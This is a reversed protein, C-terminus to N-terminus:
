RQSQRSSSCDSCCGKTSAPQAQALLGSHFSALTGPRVCAEMIPKKTLLTAVNLGVCVKEVDLRWRIMQRTTENGQLIRVRASHTPAGAVTPQTSLLWSVSNTKDLKCLEVDEILPLLHNSKKQYGTDKPTVVKTM